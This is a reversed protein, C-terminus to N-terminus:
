RACHNRTKKQLCEVQCSLPMREHTLRMVRKVERPKSLLFQDPWPLSLAKLRKRIDSLGSQVYAKEDDTWDLVQNGVFKLYAKESINKDTKLRAARDFPSLRQVFDDRRTLIESGQGATAFIFPLDHSTRWETKKM